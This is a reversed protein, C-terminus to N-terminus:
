EVVIVTQPTVTGEMSNRMGPPQTSGQCVGGRRGVCVLDTQGGAACVQHADQWGLPDCHEGKDQSAAHIELQDRNVRQGGCEVKWVPSLPSSKLICILDPDVWCSANCTQVLLVTGSKSIARGVVQYGCKSWM